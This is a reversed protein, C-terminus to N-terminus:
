GLHSKRCVCERFGGGRHEWLGQPKQPCLLWWTVVGRNQSALKVPSPGRPCLQTLRKAWARSVGASPVVLGVAGVEESVVEQDRSWPAGGWRGALSDAGVPRPGAGGAEGAGARAELQRVCCVGVPSEAASFGRHVPVGAQVAGAWKRSALRGPLPRPGSSARSSSLRWYEAQGSNASHAGTQM